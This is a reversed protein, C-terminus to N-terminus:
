SSSKRGPRAPRSRRTWMRSSARSSIAFSLYIPKRAPSASNKKGHGFVYLADAPYTKAIEGLATIWHRVNCGGPRDTVPYLRNFLLDGLHVVNAREFYIAADGGTHSPGFYQASVVENGLQQAFKAKEEPTLALRALKAVHDLNLDASSSM